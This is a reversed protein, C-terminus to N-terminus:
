FIICCMVISSNRISKATTNMYFCYDIHLSCLDACIFNFFFQFLNSSQLFVCVKTVQIMSTLVEKQHESDMYAGMREMLDELSCVEELSARLALFEGDRRIPKDAKPRLPVGKTSRWAGDSSEGKGSGGPRECGCAAPSEFLFNIWASM